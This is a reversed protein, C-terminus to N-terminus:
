RLLGLDNTMETYSLAAGRQHCIRRMPANTYGAMPALFLLPRAAEPLKFLTHLSTNM